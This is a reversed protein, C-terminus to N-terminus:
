LNAVYLNGQLMLSPYINAKGRAAEQEKTFGRFYCGFGTCINGGVPYLRYLSYKVRWKSKNSLTYKLIWTPSSLTTIEWFNQDLNQTDCKSEEFPVVSSHQRQNKNFAVYTNQPFTINETSETQWETPRAKSQFAKKNNRPDETGLSDNPWM